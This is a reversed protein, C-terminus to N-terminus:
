GNTEVEAIGMGVVADDVGVALHELGPPSPPFQLSGNSTPYLLPAQSSGIGLLFLPCKQLVKPTSERRPEM